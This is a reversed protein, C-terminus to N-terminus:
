EWTTVYDLANMVRKKDPKYVHELTYPFPTDFGSVRGVPAELSDICKEAVTAVPPPLGNWYRRGTSLAGNLVCPM